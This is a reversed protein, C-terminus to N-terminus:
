RRYLTPKRFVDPLFSVRACSRRSWPRLGRVRGDGDGVVLVSLDPRRVRKLTEILELGYCYQQREVWKLSGVVGCVIHGDPVGFHARAAQRQEDSLPLFLNTDVAGEVTVARPAGLELARGALYPTWGIFGVSRRYLRREYIEFPLAFLPGRTVRFFGSVPDGSSVIYRLKRKQAARILPLGGAIGTSEQYVLDWDESALLNALSRSSGRRDQKDLDVCSVETTSKRCILLLAGCGFAM